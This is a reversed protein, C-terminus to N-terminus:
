AIMAELAHCATGVGDGRSVAAGVAEARRRYKPNDLLRRLGAAVRPAQYRNGFVTRAVGLRALRAANEPQDHTFPVVLMPRGARMALGTTGIGGSHVVAAARPFLAAFPAYDCAFAGGPVAPPRGPYRGVVVARRGLRRAAAISADPFGDGVVASSMGLTFVVPPPGADLFRALEPPLGAAADQDLFPFGTVVAQPPWDPQPAALRPSFLALVRAPSFTEIPNL